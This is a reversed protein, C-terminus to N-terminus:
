MFSGVGVANCTKQKLIQLAKLLSRYLATSDYVSHMNLVLLVKVVFKCDTDRVLTGRSSFYIQSKIFHNHSQQWAVTHLQSLLM